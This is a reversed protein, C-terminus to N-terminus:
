VRSRFIADVELLWNCYQTSTDVTQATMFEWCGAMGGIPHLPSPTSVESWSRSPMRTARASQKPQFVQILKFAPLRAVATISSPTTAIQDPRFGFALCGGAAYHPTTTTGGGGIENVGSVSAFAVWTLKTSKMKVEDFLAILTSWESFTTTAPDCSVNGKLNGSGDSSQAVFAHMRFVYSKESSFLSRATAVVDEPFVVGALEDCALQRQVLPLASKLEKKKPMLEDCDMMTKAHGILFSRARLFLEDDLILSKGPREGDRAKIERAASVVAKAAWSPRHPPTVPAHKINSRSAM